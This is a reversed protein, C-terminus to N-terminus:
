SSNLILVGLLGINLPVLVKELSKLWTILRATEIADSGIFWSLEFTVVRVLSCDATLLRLPNNEVSCLATAPM